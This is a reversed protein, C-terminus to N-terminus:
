LNSTWPDAPVTFNLFSYSEIMKYTRNGCFRPTAILESVEDKIQAFSYNVSAGNKLTFSMPQLVVPILTTQTCPNIVEVELM